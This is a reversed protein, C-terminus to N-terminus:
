STAAVAASRAGPPVPHDLLHRALRLSLAVITLQPNVGVTAPLASGDCVHVGGTGRVRLDPDLVGDRPDASPRVSGHPHFAMLRLSAASLPHRHLPRLDGDRLPPLGAVPLLVERAGAAFWLEVLRELGFAVAERDAPHLDYRVVTRRLRGAGAEVVRGVPRDRIMMGFQAWRRHDLMASRHDDGRLPLTFALYEPPGGIGELMVGRGAFCDVGYSQPVGHHVDPLEDDFRAAAATAPHIALHRGLHPNGAALGSRRLLGPTLLAGTAIVVREAEIRLRSGDAGRAHVVNPAGAEVRLVRTRDLLRAGAALADDIWALGPHRKAGVPCGFVCRGSGQCGPANRPLWEGPWGMADAGRKALHANRGAVEPPVREVGFGASAEDLYPALAAPRLQELGLEDAWGDLVADPPRLCTGSNIASTGGVVRGLPIPISPTGLAVTQGGDRYLRAFADIARPAATALDVRAGEEVITVDLGAEALRCAVPAGGPGTGIVCVATRLTTSM